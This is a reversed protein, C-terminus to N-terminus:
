PQDPIALHPPTEICVITFRTWGPGSAFHTDEVGEALAGVLADVVVRVRDLVHAVAERHEGIVHVALRQRETVACRQPETVLDFEAEFLDLPYLPDLEDRVVCLDAAAVAAIFLVMLEKAVAM